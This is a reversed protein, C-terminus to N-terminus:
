SRGWIFIDVQNVSTLKLPHFVPVYVFMALLGALGIGGCYVWYIGGSVYVEAPFGLMLIASVFSAMLSVSVPLVGLRRGGVLYDATTTPRDRAARAAAIAHYVGIALTGLLTLSFFVYDVVHLSRHSAAPSPSSTVPSM